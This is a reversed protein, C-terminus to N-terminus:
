KMLFQKQLLHNNINKLYNINAKVVKDDYRIEVIKGNYVKVLRFTNDEVFNTKYYETLDETNHYEIPIEQKKKNTKEYVDNDFLNSNGRKNNFSTIFNIDDCYYLHNAYCIGIFSKTNKNYKGNDFNNTKLFEKQNIDLLKGRVGFYELTKILQSPTYGSKGRVYTEPDEFEDIEDEKYRFQQIVDCKDPENHELEEVVDDLEINELVDIVTDLTEKKKQNNLQIHHLITEPVCMGNGLDKFGNFERYPLYAFAKFMLSSKINQNFKRTQSSVTLSDIDIFRESGSGKMLFDTKANEPAKLYYDSDTIDIYSVIKNNAMNATSKNEEDINILVTVRERLRYNVKKGEKYFQLTITEPKSKKYDIIKKDKKIPILTYSKGIITYVYGTPNMEKYADKLMENVERKPVSKDVNLFKRAENVNFRLNFFNYTDRLIKSMNTNISHKSKKKDM